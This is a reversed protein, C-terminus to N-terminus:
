GHFTAAVPELALGTASIDVAEAVGGLREAALGLLGNDPGVLFSDGAALAVGRRDTGVGPDVVGLFVAPGAREAASELALAGRRVDGLPVGHTVDIVKAGPALREIVLKCSGTFQDEHGYDTLFAIPLRMM